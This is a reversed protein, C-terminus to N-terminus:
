VGVIHITLTDRLRVPLGGMFTRVASDPGDFGDLAPSSQPLGSMMWVMELGRAKMRGMKEGEKNREQRRRREVVGTAM